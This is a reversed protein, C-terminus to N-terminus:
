PSLIIDLLCLHAILELRLHQDRMALLGLPPLSAASDAGLFLQMHMRLAARLFDVQNAIVLRLALASGGGVEDFDWDEGFVDLYDLDKGGAFLGVLLAVAFLLCLDLLLDALIAFEAHLHSFTLLHQSHHLTTELADGDM